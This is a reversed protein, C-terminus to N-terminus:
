PLDESRFVRQIQKHLVGSWTMEDLRLTVNDYENEPCYVVGTVKDTYSMEGRVVGHTDIIHDILRSHEYPYDLEVLIYPTLVSTSAGEMSLDVGYGYAKILGGKGLNTGGYYRVVVALVDILQHSRLRNLIPLGASGSPEGDDQSFEILNDPNLRWAYCHHTADPFRSRLAKLESQVAVESSVPVIFTLFKSGKERFVSSLTENVCRYQM